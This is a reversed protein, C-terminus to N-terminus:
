LNWATEMVICSSTGLTWVSGSVPCGRVTSSADAQVSCAFQANCPACDRVLSTKPVFQPNPSRYRCFSRAAMTEGGRCVGVRAPVRGACAVESPPVRPAAGLWRGRQPARWPWNGEAFRRFVGLKGERPRGQTAARRDGDDRAYIASIQAGIWCGARLGLM